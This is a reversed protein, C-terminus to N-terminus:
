NWEFFQWSSSAAALLLFCCGLFCCCSGAALSASASPSAAVLSAFSSAAALAAAASLAAIAALSTAAAAALANTSYNTLRTNPTALMILCTERQAQYLELKKKFNDRSDASPVSGSWSVFLSAFSSAFSSSLYLGGALMCPIRCM